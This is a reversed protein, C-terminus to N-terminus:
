KDNNGRIKLIKEKLVQIQEEQLQKIISLAKKAIQREFMGSEPLHEYPYKEPNAIKELEEIQKQLDTMKDKTM